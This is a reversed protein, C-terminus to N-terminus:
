RLHQYTDSTIKLKSNENKNRSNKKMKM